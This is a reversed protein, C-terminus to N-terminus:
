HPPEHFGELLATVNGEVFVWYAGEEGSDPFNSLMIGPLGTAECLAQLHKPGWQLNGVVAEAGATKGMDVARNLQWASEDTGANFSAVVQLGIWQCFDKQYRACLVRRGSVRATRRRIDQDVQQAKNKIQRLRDNLTSEREPWELVLRASLENCLAVYSDPIAFTPLSGLSVIRNTSFGAKTVGADLGAQYDHRVFLSASSLAAVQGPEMDFHGPCSGPPLLRTVQADQGLLDRIAAEILTTTVVIQPTNSPAPTSDAGRAMFVTVALLVLVSPIIKKM